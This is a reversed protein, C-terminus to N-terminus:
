IGCGIFSTLISSQITKLVVSSIVSIALVYQQALVTIGKSGNCLYKLSRQFPCHFPLLLLLYTKELFLFVSEEEDESEWLAM